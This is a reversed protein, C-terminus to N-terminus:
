HGGSSDDCPQLGVPCPAGSNFPGHPNRTNWFVIGTALMVLHPNPPRTPPFQLPTAQKVVLWPEPLLSLPNQGPQSNRKRDAGLCREM